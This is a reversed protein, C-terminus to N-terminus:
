GMKGVGCLKRRAERGEEGRGQRYGVCKMVTLWLPTETDPSVARDRPHSCKPLPWLSHSPGELSAPVVPPFNLAM